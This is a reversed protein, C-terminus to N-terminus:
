KKIKSYTQAEVYIPNNLPVRTEKGNIIRNIGMAWNRCCLSVFLYIYKTRFLKSHVCNCNLNLNITNEFYRILNLICKKQHLINPLAYLIVNYM